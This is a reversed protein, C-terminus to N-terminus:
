RLHFSGAFGGLFDNVMADLIVANHTRISEQLFENYLAYFIYNM